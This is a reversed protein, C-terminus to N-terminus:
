NAYPREIDLGAYGKDALEKGHREPLDEDEPTWTGLGDVYRNYMCFAATILVTDHIAKDEAGHNKAREVDAATVDRPDDQVKDAIALLAKMKDSIPASEPDAKVQEVLAEDQVLAGATASHCRTCFECENRSSTYAAILEREAPELPSPGRLITEALVSLAKASEPYKQLPAIIGPVGDPLDILPM